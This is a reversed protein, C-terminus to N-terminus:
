TFSMFGPSAVPSPAPPPRQCTTFIHRAPAEAPGDIRTSRRGPRAFSGNTYNVGGRREPRRVIVHGSEAVDSRNMRDVVMYASPQTLKSLLVAIGFCMDSGPERHSDLLHSAVLVTGIRYTCAHKPPECLKELHCRSLEEGGNGFGHRRCAHGFDPGISLRPMLCLPQSAGKRWASGNSPEIHRILAFEGACRLGISSSHSRVGDGYCICAVNRRERESFTMLLHCHNAPQVISLDGM